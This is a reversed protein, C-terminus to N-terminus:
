GGESLPLVEQPLPDFFSDPVVVQGKFVDPQPRGLTRAPVLRAVPKGNRAITVEEGAEVQALLRSLHTKAQHVDVTAM